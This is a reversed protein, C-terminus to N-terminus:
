AAGSTTVMVPDHAPPPSMSAAKQRAYRDRRQARLKEANAEYYRRGQQREYALGDKYDVRRKVRRAEAHAPDNQYKAREHARSRCLPTCYRQHGVPTFVAGCREDACVRGADAIAVDGMDPWILWPHFGAACAIRDAIRETVGEDRRRRREGGGCRAEDCVQSLTWGTVAYFPELPWRRQIRPSM